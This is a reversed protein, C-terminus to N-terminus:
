RSACPRTTSSSATPRSATSASCRATTALVVVVTRAPARRRRARRAAPRAARRGGRGGRRLRRRAHAPVALTRSPRRTRRTRTTRTCGSSSRSRADEAALWQSRRTSPRARGPRQIADMGASSRSGRRPRLRRLLPRLGARRGLACDLVFASVFGGTRYGRARLVEALTTQEDGLYFGGNDRCRTGRPSRAPSCRRTPRCRSRCSRRRAAHLAPRSRRPRRAAADARRRLRLQRRRDARLTDLTVVLLNQSGGDLWAPADGSRRAVALATALAVLALVIWSARRM